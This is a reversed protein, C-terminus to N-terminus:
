SSVKKNTKNKKYREKLDISVEVKELLAKMRHSEIEDVEQELGCKHFISILEGFMESAVEITLKTKTHSVIVEQSQDWKRLRVKNNNDIVQITDQISKLVVQLDEKGSNSRGFDLSIINRERRPVVRHNLRELNAVVSLDKKYRNNWGGYDFVYYNASYSFNGYNQSAIGVLILNEDLSVDAKQYNAYDVYDVFVTLINKDLSPRGTGSSFIITLGGFQIEKM